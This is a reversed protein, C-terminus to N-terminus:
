ASIIPSTLKKGMRKHDKGIKINFTTKEKSLIIIKRKLLRKLFTLKIYLNSRNMLLWLVIRSLKQLGLFQFIFYNVPNSISM